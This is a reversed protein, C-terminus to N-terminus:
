WKRNVLSAIVEGVDGGKVVSEDMGAKLAASPKTASVLVIPMRKRHRLSRALRALKLGEKGQWDFDILLLDYPIQSKIFLVADDYNSTSVLRYDPTTLVERVAAIFELDAGVYLLRFKGEALPVGVHALM